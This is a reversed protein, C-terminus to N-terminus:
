HLIEKKAKDWRQIYLSGLRNSNGKSLPLIQVEGSNVLGSISVTVAYAEYQGSDRISIWTRSHFGENALGIEFKVPNLKLGEKVIGKYGIIIEDIFTKSPYQVVDGKVCLLNLAALKGTRLALMLANVFVKQGTSQLKLKGNEVTIAGLAYPDCILIKPGLYMLLSTLQSSLELEASLENSYLIKDWIIQPPATIIQNRDADTAPHNYMRGYLDQFQGAIVDVRVDIKKILYFKEGLLLNDSTREVRVVGQGLPINTKITWAGTLIDPVAEGVLQNDLTSISVKTTKREESEEQVFGIFEEPDDGKKLDKSNGKLVQFLVRPEDIVVIKNTILKHLEGKEFLGMPFISNVNVNELPKVESPNGELLLCNQLETLLEIKRRILGDWNPITYYLRARRSDLPSTGDVNYSTDQSEITAKQPKEPLKFTHEINDPKAAITVTKLSQEILEKYIEEIDSDSGIVVWQRLDKLLEHNSMLIKAAGDRGHSEFWYPEGQAIDEIM